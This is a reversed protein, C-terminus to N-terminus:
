GAGGFVDAVAAAIDGATDCQIINDAIAGLVTAGYPATVLRRDLLIV